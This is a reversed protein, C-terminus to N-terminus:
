VLLHCLHYGFDIVESTLCLSAKSACFIKAAHLHPYYIHDVSVREKAKISFVHAFYCPDSSINGRLM